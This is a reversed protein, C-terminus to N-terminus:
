DRDFFVKAKDLDYSWPLDSNKWGNVVRHGQHPGSEAKDGEFGDIINYVHEYGLKALHDVTWASWFGARCLLVIPTQKNFGKQEVFNEIQQIAQDNEVLKWNKNQDDWQQWDASKYPINVDILTPAGVCALEEPSRLDIFLVDPSQENIFKYAETATLYLELRTMKGIPVEM